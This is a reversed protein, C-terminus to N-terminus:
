SSARVLTVDRTGLHDKGFTRRNKCDGLKTGTSVAVSSAKLSLAKNRSARAVAARTLSNCARDALGSQMRQSSSPDTTSMVQGPKMALFLSGDQPACDNM